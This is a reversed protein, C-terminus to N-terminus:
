AARRSAQTSTPPVFSVSWGRSLPRRNAPALNSFETRSTHKLEQKSPLVSPTKVPIVASRSWPCTYPAVPDANLALRHLAGLPIKVIMVESFTDTKPLM